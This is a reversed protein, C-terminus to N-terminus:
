QAPVLRSLKLVELAKEAETLNSKPPMDGADVAAKARVFQQLTLPGDMLFKKAGDGDGTHCRACTLGVGRAVPEPEAPLPEDFVPIGNRLTIKTTTSRTTTTEDRLARFAAEVARGRANTREVDLIESDLGRAAATFESSVELSRKANDLYLASNPAVFELARSVGYVTDGRPALDGIPAINNFILNQIVDRQVVEKVVVPAHHVPAHVFRCGRGFIGCRNCAEALHATVFMQCFVVVVSLFFRPNM